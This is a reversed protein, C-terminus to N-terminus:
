FKEQGFDEADETYVGIIPVQPPLPASLVLTVIAFLAFGQRFVM